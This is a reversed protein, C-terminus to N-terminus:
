AHMHAHVTHVHLWLFAHMSYATCVAAFICEWVHVAHLYVSKVYSCMHVCHVHMCICVKYLRSYKITCLFVCASKGGNVATWLCQFICVHDNVRSELVDGSSYNAYRQMACLHSTLTLLSLKNRCIHTYSLCLSVCIIIYPQVPATVHWTPVCVTYEEHLQLTHTHIHTHEVRLCFGCKKGRPCNVQSKNDYM